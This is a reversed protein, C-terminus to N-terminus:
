ILRHPAVTIVLTSDKQTSWGLRSRKKTGRKTNGKVKIAIEIKCKAKHCILPEVFGKPTQAL